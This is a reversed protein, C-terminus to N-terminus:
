ANVKVQEVELATYETKLGEDSVQGLAKTLPETVDTCSKGVFGHAEVTIGGKKDVEITVTKM